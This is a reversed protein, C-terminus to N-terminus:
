RTAGADDRNATPSPSPPRHTAKELAQSMAVKLEDFGLLPGTPGTSVVYAGVPLSPAQESMIARMRRRLRNRVVANGVRRNIAYAVETRSWTSQQLYSVSLPGSRGRFSTHRLAEFTRRSGIPQVSPSSARASQIAVSVGVTTPTGECSALSDRSTRGQDVDAQPVRPDESTQTREAPIHTENM